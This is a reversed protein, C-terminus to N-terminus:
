PAFARKGRQEDTQPQMVRIRPRLPGSHQQELILSVPDSVEGAEWLRLRLNLEANRDTGKLVEALLLRCRYRCLVAWSQHGSIAGELRRGLSHRQSLRHLSPSGNRLSQSTRRTVARRTRHARHGPHPLESAPQRRPPRRPAGAALEPATTSGHVDGSSWRRTREQSQQHIRRVTM